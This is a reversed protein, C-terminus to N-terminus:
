FLPPFYHALIIIYLIIYDGKLFEEPKKNSKPIKKALDSGINSFFHNFKEAIMQPNSITTGNSEIETIQKNTMNRCTMQYTAASLMAEEELLM